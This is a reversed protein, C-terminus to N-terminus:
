RQQLCRREHVDVGEEVGFVNKGQVCVNAEETECHMLSAKEIVDHYCSDVSWAHICTPPTLSMSEQGDIRAAGEAFVGRLHDTHAGLVRGRDGKCPCLSRM